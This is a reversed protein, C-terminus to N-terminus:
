LAANAGHRIGARDRLGAQWRCGQSEISTLSARDTEFQPRSSARFTSWNKYQITPLVSVDMYKTLDDVWLYLMVSGKNMADTKDAEDVKRIGGGPCGTFTFFAMDDPSYKGMEEPAQFNWDFVSSYFNKAAPPCSDSPKGYPNLPALIASSSTSLSLLPSSTPYHPLRM